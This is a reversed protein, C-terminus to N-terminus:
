ISPWALFDIQAARREGERLRAQDQAALKLWGIVTHPRVAALEVPRGAPLGLDVARRGSARVRAPLSRGEETADHLVLVPVERPLGDTRTVVVGDIRAPVDNAWLCAAVRLDPCFVSVTVPDRPPPAHITREDVLGIPLEDHVAAWRGLMAERFGAPVGKRRALTAALQGLTYRRGGKGLWMAAKRVRVDNL